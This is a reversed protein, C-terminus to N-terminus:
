FEETGPLSTPVDHCLTHIRDGNSLHSPQPESLNLGPKLDCKGDGGAEWRGWWQVHPFKSNWVDSGFLCFMGLSQSTPPLGLFVNAQKPQIYVYNQKSALPHVLYTPSRNPGEDPERESCGNKWDWSSIIRSWEWPPKSGQLLGTNIVSLIYQVSCINIM